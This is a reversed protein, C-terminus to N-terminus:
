CAIDAHAAAEQYSVAQGGSGVEAVWSAVHAARPDRSGMLVEHGHRILGAGVSRGVEGSGLVAFRM